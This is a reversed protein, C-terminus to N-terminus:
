RGASRRSRRPSTASTRRTTGKFAMHELLHSIGHENRSKTARASVSGYASRWPRSTRCPVTVVAIGTALRTVDVGM